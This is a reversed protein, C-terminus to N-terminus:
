FVSTVFKFDRVSLYKYRKTATTVKIAWRKDNCSNIRNLHTKQAKIIKPTYVREETFEIVVVAYLLENVIAIVEFWFVSSLWKKEIKLLLLAM